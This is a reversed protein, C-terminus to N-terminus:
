LAVAAGFHACGAVPHQRREVAGGARDATGQVHDLCRPSCPQVYPRTHMCAFDLVPILVKYPYGDV